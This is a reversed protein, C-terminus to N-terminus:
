ADVTPKGTVSYRGEGVWNATQEQGFIDRFTVAQTRVVCGRFPASRALVPVWVRGERPLLYSGKWRRELPQEDALDIRFDIVPDRAVVAEHAGRVEIAAYLVCLEQDASIAEALRQFAPPCESEPFLAPKATAEWKEKYGIVLVPLQETRFAREAVALQAEAVKGQAQATQAQGRAGQAQDDMAQRQAEAVSLQSQAVGVQAEMAHQQAEAIQCQKHMMVAQAQASDKQAEAIARLSVSVRLQAVAVAVLLINATAM